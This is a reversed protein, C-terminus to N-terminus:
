SDESDQEEYDIAAALSTIVFVVLVLFLILIWGM